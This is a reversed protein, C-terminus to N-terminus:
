RACYAQWGSQFHRVSGEIFTVESRAASIFRRYEGRQNTSHRIRVEGCAFRNGARNKHVFVNRFELQAAKGSKVKVSHKAASIWSADDKYVAKVAFESKKPTEYYGSAQAAQVPTGVICSSAAYFCLVSARKITRSLQSLPLLTRRHVVLRLRRAYDHPRHVMDPWDSGIAGLGHEPGCQVSAKM